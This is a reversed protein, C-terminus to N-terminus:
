GRVDQLEERQALHKFAVCDFGRQREGVWLRGQPRNAGCQLLHTSSCVIQIAVVCVPHEVRGDDAKGVVPLEIDCELRYQQFELQRHRHVHAFLGAPVLSTIADLSVLRDQGGQLGIIGDNDQSGQLIVAM